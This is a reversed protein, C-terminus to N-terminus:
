IRFVRHTIYLPSTVINPPPHIEAAVRDAQGPLQWDALPLQPGWNAPPCPLLDMAKATVPQKHADELKYLKVEDHCCGSKKETMGCRGCRDNHGAFLEVGALKGMCYHLELAVGSSIALYLLALIATVFKKMYKDAFNAIIIL